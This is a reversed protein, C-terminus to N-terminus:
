PLGFDIAVLKWGFGDRLLTMKIPREAPDESVGTIEFRNIGVYRYKFKVPQKPTEQAPQQGPSPDKGVDSTRIPSPRQGKTMAAAIASPTIMADVMSNIMATAMMAGLAAFPNDKLEALKSNMAVTMQGRISERLAPFDVYQNLAVADGAVAAAQLQKVTYYPSYYTWSTLIALAVVLMISLIHTNNKM